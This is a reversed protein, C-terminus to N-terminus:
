EPKPHQIYESSWVGSYCIDLCVNNNPNVNIWVPPHETTKFFVYNKNFALDGINTLRFFIKFM